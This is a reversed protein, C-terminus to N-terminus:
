VDPLEALQPGQELVDAVDLSLYKIAQSSQIDHPRTAASRVGDHNQELRRRLRMGSAANAGRWHTGM